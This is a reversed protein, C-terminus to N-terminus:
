TFMVGSSGLDARVMKQVGVSLAISFHDFKKDVRYSIARNTFLSAICKKVALLLDKDGTVNLFTEQQGAFSADPLDEATASSRVAVDTGKSKYQASLTKYASIIEDAFDKPFPVSIILKRIEEGRKMLDKIDHTDLGKLIKKIKTKLDASEFFYRYANATTAFGNPVRLGKKALTCYMEGLSANKGGVEPVDKISTEEFFKVYKNKTM